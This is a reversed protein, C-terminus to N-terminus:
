SACALVGLLISQRILFLAVNQRPLFYIVCRSNLITVNHFLVKERSGHSEKILMKQTTILYVCVCVSVISEMNISKICLVLSQQSNNCHKKTLVIAVQIQIAFSPSLSTAYKGYTDDDM